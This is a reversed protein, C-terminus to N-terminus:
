LSGDTGERLWGRSTALAGAQFRSRAGLQSMVDSALRRVTRVSVGLKRAIVADTDGRALLRLVAEEQRTPGQEDKSRVVGLDAAVDWIQEFLALLAALVGAGHVLTAGRRSDNPDLPVMATSRDVIILRMPLVPVTRVYGGQNALWYAYDKTAPDNRVSDLYVTRIRVGRGLLEEDLPKSAQLADSSQAGGPVFTSLECRTQRTLRELQDRVADTGVFEEAARQAARLELARDVLIRALAARSDDLLHQRRALEAQERALLAELGVEPPIPRMVGTRETSPRLLSLRALEDLAARVDAHSMMLDTALEAVGADPFRLMCLYIREVADSVGFVELM